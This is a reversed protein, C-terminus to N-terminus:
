DFLGFIGISIRGPVPEPAVYSASIEGFPYAGDLEIQLRTDSVLNFSAGVRGGILLHSRDERLTGGYAGVYFPMEGSPVSQLGAVALLTFDPVTGGRLQGQLNVNENLYIRPAIGGSVVMPSVSVNLSLDGERELGTTFQGNIESSAVVRPPVNLSLSLANEDTDLQRAPLMSTQLCGSLLLCGGLAFLGYLITLHLSRIFRM